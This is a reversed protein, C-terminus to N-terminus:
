YFKAGKFTEVKVTGNEPVNKKEADVEEVVKVGADADKKEAAQRAARRRKQSEFLVEEEEIEKLM